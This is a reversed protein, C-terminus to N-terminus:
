GSIGAEKEAWLAKSFAKWLDSGQVHMGLEAGEQMTRLMLATLGFLKQKARAEINEPDIHRSIDEAHCALAERAISRMALDDTWDLGLAMFVVALEASIRHADDRQNELESM